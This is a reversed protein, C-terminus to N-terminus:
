RVQILRMINLRGDKSDFMELPLDMKRLEKAVENLYTPCHTDKSRHGKRRCNNCNKTKSKCNRSEHGKLGCQGCVKGQCQHQGLALCERCQWPKANIKAFLKIRTNTDKNCYPIVGDHEGFLVEIGAATTKFFLSRAKTINHAKGERFEEIRAGIPSVLNMLTEKVKDARINSRVNAIEVRAMRRVFHQGQENAQVICTRLTRDGGTQLHDLFDNKAEKSIFQCYSNNKDAWHTAPVGGNERLTWSEIAERAKDHSLAESIKITITSDRLLKERKALVRLSEGLTKSIGATNAAFEVNAAKEYIADLISGDCKGMGNNGAPERIQKNKGNHAINGTM